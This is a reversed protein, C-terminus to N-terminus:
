VSHNSHHMPYIAPFPIALRSTQLPANPLYRPISNRFRVNPPASPRSYSFPVNPTACQTFLPSHFLYVPRKSRRMTYIAPLTIALRSTQHPANPLYPPISFRFPVNSPACQTFLTSHFLLVPHNSHHMPYIAPFTIALRYTQHPANPLYRPISYSVPCKFPRMPYIVPFPIALRSM